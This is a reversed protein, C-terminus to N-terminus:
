RLELNLLTEGRVNLVQLTMRRGQKRLIMVTASQEDAGGGIIVPFANGEEGKPIYRYEHQHANLCVDFKAGALIDGWYDRCPNFWGGGYVPIHHILVRRAASRFAPSSLEKRLFDAQDKRYQTFDNLGFYAEHDDPKDEGCDLLVFRTDGLNFAGYSHGDGAKDLLDWLFLSYAGRTEHNGRIYIVPVHMAGVGTNYRSLSRVALAETQVDAICDGNFFVLDYPVDKVQEALRDFLAYNDHIDNFIVATFDTQRDDPTVFSALPSTVTEGFEKRYPQYLTV